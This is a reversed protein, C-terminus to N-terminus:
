SAGRARISPANILALSVTQNWEPYAAEVALTVLGIRKRAKDAAHVSSGLIPNHEFWASAVYVKLSHM